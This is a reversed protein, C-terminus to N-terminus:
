PPLCCVQQELRANHGDQRFASLLVHVCMQLHRGIPAVTNALINVLFEYRSHHYQSSVVGGSHHNKWLEGCVLMMQTQTNVVTEWLDLIDSCLQSLAPMVENLTFSQSILLVGCLHKRFKAFGHEGDLPVPLSSELMEKIVMNRIELPLRTWSTNAKSVARTRPRAM